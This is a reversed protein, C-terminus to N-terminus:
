APPASVPALPSRPRLRWGREASDFLQGEDEREPAARRCFIQVRVANPCRKAFEIAQPHSLKVENGFYYNSFVHGAAPERLQLLILRADRPLNKFPVNTSIEFRNGAIVNGTVGKETGAVGPYKLLAGDEDWWEQQPQYKQAASM